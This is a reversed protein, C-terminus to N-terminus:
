YSTVLVSCGHDRRNAVVLDSCLQRAAWLGMPATRDPYRYGMLTDAIGPGSDDVVCTLSTLDVWLTIDVPPAGHVIANAAVENVASVFDSITETPVVCNATACGRVLERVRALDRLGFIRTSVSPTRGPPQPSRAQECSLFASPDLYEPSAQRTSGTSVCPHTAKAAAIVSPPLERTDYTCLGHFAFGGLTENVLSEYRAWSAYSVEDAGLPVTGTAWLEFPAESEALTRQYSFLTSIPAGYLDRDLGFELHPHPDLAEQMMAIRQPTGHVLVHGGSALGEAVFSRTAEVVTADDHHLLLDHSYSGSLAGVPRSTM